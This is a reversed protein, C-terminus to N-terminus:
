GRRVAGGAAPRGAGPVRAGYRRLMGAILGTTTHRKPDGAIRVRGGYARVVQREPVSAVTYDAEPVSRRCL